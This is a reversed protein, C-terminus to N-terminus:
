ILRDYQPKDSNSGIPAGTRLAQVAKRDDEPKQRERQISVYIAVTKINKTRM